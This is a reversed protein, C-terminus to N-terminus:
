SIWTPSVAAVKWIKGEEQLTYISGSGCEGGCHDSRTVFAFHGVFKPASVSISYDCHQRDPQDFPPPVKGSKPDPMSVPDDKVAISIAQRLASAFDRDIEVHRDPRYFLLDAAFRDPSIDSDYSRMVDSFSGELLPSICYSIDTGKMEEAIDDLLASLAANSDPAAESACANLLALAVLTTSRKFM